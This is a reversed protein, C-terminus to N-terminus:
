LYDENRMDWDDDKKNKCGQYQPYELDLERRKENRARRAQTQEPTEDMINELLNIVDVGGIAKELENM